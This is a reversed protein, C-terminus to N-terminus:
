TYRAVFAPLRVQWTTGGLLVKFQLVSGQDSPNYELKVSWLTEAGWVVHSIDTLRSDFCFCDM